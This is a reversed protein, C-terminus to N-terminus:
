QHQWQVQPGEPYVNALSVTTLKGMHYSCPGYPYRHISNDGNFGVQDKSRTVVDLSDKEHSIFNDKQIAPWILTVRREIESAKLLKEVACCIFNVTMLM